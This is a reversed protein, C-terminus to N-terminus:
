NIAAQKAAELVLRDIIVNENRQEMKSLERIAKVTKPLLTWTKKIKKIKNDM